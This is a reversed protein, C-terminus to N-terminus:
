MGLSAWILAEYIKLTRCILGVCCFSTAHLKFDDNGIAEKVSMNSHSSNERWYLALSAEKECISDLRIPQTWDFNRTTDRSKMFTCLDHLVEDTRPKEAVCNKTTRNRWPGSDVGYDYNLM